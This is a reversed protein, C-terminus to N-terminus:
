EVLGVGPHVECGFELEPYPCFRVPFWSIIEVFTVSAFIAEMFVWFM